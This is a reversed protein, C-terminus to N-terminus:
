LHNIVSEYTGIWINMEVPYGIGKLFLRYGKPTYEDDIAQLSRMTSENAWGYMSQGKYDSKFMDPHERPNLVFAEGNGDSQDIAIEILKKLKDYSSFADPTLDVADAVTYANPSHKGRRYKREGSATTEVVIFRDELYTDMDLQSDDPINFSSRISQLIFEPNM